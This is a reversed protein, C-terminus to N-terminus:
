QAASYKQIELAQHVIFVMQVSQEPRCEWTQVTIAKKVSSVYKNLKLTRILVRTVNNCLRLVKHVTLELLVLSIEMQIAFIDV